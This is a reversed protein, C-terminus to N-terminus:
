LSIVLRAAISTQTIGLPVLLDDRLAEGPHAPLETTRKLRPHQILTQTAKTTMPTVAHPEHHGTPTFPSDDVRGTPM